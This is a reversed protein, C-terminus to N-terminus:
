LNGAVGLLMQFEYRDEKVDLKEILAEAHEVLAPDHTAIAVRRADGDCLQELLSNFSSRIEDPEVFAIEEPEIYIGKCVRVDTPGEDMLEAIDQESRRLCSQIVIGVNDFERRMERYVDLTVSTVSSDEMDIRVFSGHDAASAILTRVAERCREVDFRLGLESLKISIGCQLSKAHIDRIAELYLDVASQVQELDTSDEGLVDITASCNLANLEGVTRYADELGVGAIYRRSFRWVLSRPVFPMAAAVARNFLGVSM